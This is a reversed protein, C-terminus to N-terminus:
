GVRLKDRDSHLLGSGGEDNGGDYERSSGARKGYLVVTGVGDPGSDESIQVDSGSGRINRSSPLGVSARRTGEADRIVPSSTTDPSAAVAVEGGVGSRVGAKSTTAITTELTIRVSTSANGGGREGFPGERGGVAVVVIIDGKNISKADRGLDIVADSTVDSSTFDVKVRVAGSIELTGSIGGTGDDAAFGITQDIRVGTIRGRAARARVVSGLGARRRANRIVVVELAM